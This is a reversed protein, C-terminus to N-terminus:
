LFLRKYCYRTTSSWHRVQQRLLCCLSAAAHNRQRTIRCTSQHWRAHPLMNRSLSSLLLLLLLWVSCHTVTEQRDQPKSVPVRLSFVCVMVPYTMSFQSSVLAWDTHRANSSSLESIIYGQSQKSRSDLDIFEMSDMDVGFTVKSGGAERDLVAVHM